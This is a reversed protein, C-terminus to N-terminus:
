SPGLFVPDVSDSFRDAASHLTVRGESGRNQRQDSANGSKFPGDRPLISSNPFPLPFDHPIEFPGLARFPEFSYFLFASLNLYSDGAPEPRMPEYPPLSSPGYSTPNAPETSDLKPEHITQHWRVYTYM